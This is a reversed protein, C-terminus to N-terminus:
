EQPKLHKLAVQKRPDRSGSAQSVPKRTSEVACQALFAELDERLFKIRRGVRYFRILKNRALKLIYASSVKLAIAAESAPILDNILDPMTEEVCRSLAPSPPSNIAEPFILACGSDTRPRDFLAHPADSAYDQTM